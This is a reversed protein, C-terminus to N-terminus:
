EQEPRCLLVPRHGSRVVKDAVSGLMARSLGGRGHTAMCVLDADDEDAQVVIAHGPSADTVVRTSVVVGDARLSDSIHDLYIRAADEAEDVVQRNMQVTHPLYPSAIEMPYPVVRVLILESGFLGQLARAHTLAEESLKTGDLPVLIKQPAWRTAPSWPEDEGDPRILLIPQEAHRIMNDAVSGLWARSLPGRGHTAMVVLKVGQEKAHARLTNTVTGSLVSTSLRGDLGGDRARDAIEELYSAAWERAEADWEDAAFAAIPERVHVLEVRGGIKGAIALGPTLATEAFGSGDLPILIDDYM